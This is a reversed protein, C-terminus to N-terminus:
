GGCRRVLKEMDRELEEFAAHLATRRPQLVIQWRAPLRALRPRIAERLRRKMRNRGVAGGLSRPVAFGIRPGGPADTELCIAM